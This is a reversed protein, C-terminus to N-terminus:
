LGNALESASYRVIEIIQEGNHDAIKVQNGRIRPRALTNPFADRRREPGCRPPRRECGM